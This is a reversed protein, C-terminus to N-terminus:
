VQKIVKGVGRGLRKFVAMAAQTDIDIPIVRDDTMFIVSGSWPDPAGPVYLAVRNNPLREVEFAIQSQDDFRAIVPKLETKEAEGGINGTLRGKFIAYGPVALLKADIMQFFRKGFFSRAAIGAMFCIVVMAAIVLLNFVVVGLVTDVKIWKLLPETIMVMYKYGKGFVTALIVIPLLFVFGGLLTMKITNMLKRM